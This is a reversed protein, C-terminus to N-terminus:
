LWCNRVFRRWRLGPLRRDALAFSNNDLITSQDPLTRHFDM